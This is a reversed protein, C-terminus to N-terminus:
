SKSPKKANTLGNLPKIIKLCIFSLALNNALRSIFRTLVALRGNMAQVERINTPSKMDIIARCKTPNAEIGRKALMFRLFKRAKVSFACKKPNLRMNYWLLTKFTEELNKQHQQPKNSKILIDDVYVKMNQRIQKAFVTNM